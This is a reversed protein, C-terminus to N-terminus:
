GCRADGGSGTSQAGGPGEAALVISYQKREAVVRGSREEGGDESGTGGADAEGLGRAQDREGNAVVVAEAVDGVVQADDCSEAM